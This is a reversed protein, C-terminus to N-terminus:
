MESRGSGSGQDVFGWCRVVDDWGEGDGGALCSLGALWGMLDSFWVWCGGEEPGEDEWHVMIVGSGTEKVERRPM